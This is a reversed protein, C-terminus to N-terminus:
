EGGHRECPLPIKQGRFDGDPVAVLKCTAKMKEMRLSTIEVKDGENKDKCAEIAEPPPGLHSGRGPPGDFAWVASASGILLFLGVMTGIINTNM